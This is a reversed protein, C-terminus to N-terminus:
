RIRVAFQAPLLRVQVTGDVVQWNSDLALIVHIKNKAAEALVSDLARFITENYVGPRPQLEHQSLLPDTRYDDNDGQMRGFFVEPLVVMVISIPAGCECVNCIGDTCVDGAPDRALCLLLTHLHVCFDSQSIYVFAYQVGALIKFAGYCVHAHHQLRRRTCNCIHTGSVNSGRHWM